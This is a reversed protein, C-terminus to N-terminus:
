GLVLLYIQAYESIELEALLDEMNATIHLVNPGWQTLLDM